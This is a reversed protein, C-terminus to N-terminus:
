CQAAPHIIPLVDFECNNRGDRCSKPSAPITRAMCGSNKAPVRIQTRSLCGAPESPLWLMGNCGRPLGAGTWSTSFSLIITCYCFFHLLSSFQLLCFRFIFIFFTFPPNYSRTGATLMGICYVRTCYGLTGLTGAFIYHLASYNSLSKFNIQLWILPKAIVSNTPLFQTSSNPRVVLPYQFSPTSPTHIM